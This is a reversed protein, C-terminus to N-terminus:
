YLRGSYTDAFSTIKAYLTKAIRFSRIGDFKQQAGRLTPAILLILLIKKM